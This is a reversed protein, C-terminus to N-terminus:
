IWTEWTAPPNKVTQAVLSAWIPSNYPVLIVAQMPLQPLIISLLYLSVLFELAVKLSGLVFFGFCPTLLLSCPVTLAVKVCHWKLPPCFM